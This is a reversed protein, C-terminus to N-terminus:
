FYRVLILTAIAGSSLGNLVSSILLAPLKRHKAYAIWVASNLFILIFTTLSLGELSKSTFAHFLQPYLTVGSILGNINGLRDIPHHHAKQELFKFAHIM